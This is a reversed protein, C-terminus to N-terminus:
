REKVEVLYLNNNKIQDAVVISSARRAIVWYRCEENQGIYLDTAAVISFAKRAILWYRLEENRRLRYIKTSFFTM